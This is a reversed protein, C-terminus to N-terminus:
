EQNNKKTFNLFEEPEKGLNALEVRASPAMEGEPFKELYLEYSKKAADLDKLENAQIFGAMFLASPAQPNEPHNNYFLLYYESAKKFSEKNSLSKVVQGHYLKALEYMSQPAFESDPYEDVIKKFEFVAEAYKGEEIKNNALDFYDKDSPNSCNYFIVFSLIFIILHM